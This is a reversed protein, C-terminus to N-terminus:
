KIGNYDEEQRDHQLLLSCRIKSHVIGNKWEVESGVHVGAPVWLAAYSCTRVILGCLFVGAWCFQVNTEWANSCAIIEGHVRWNVTQISPTCRPAQPLQTLHYVRDRNSPNEKCSNNTFLALPQISTITHLIAIQRCTIQFGHIFLKVTTMIKCHNHMSCTNVSWLTWGQQPDAHM